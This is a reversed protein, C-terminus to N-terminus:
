EDDCVEKLSEFRGTEPNRNSFRVHEALEPNSGGNVELPLYLRQQCWPCLIYERGDDDDKVTLKAPIL